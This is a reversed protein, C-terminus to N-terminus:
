PTAFRLRAIGLHLGASGSNGFVVKQFDSLFTNFDRITINTRKASSPLRAQPWFIDDAFVDRARAGLLGDVGLSM